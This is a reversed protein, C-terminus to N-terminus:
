FETDLLITGVEPLRADNGEKRDKAAQTENISTIIQDETWNEVNVAIQRSQLERAWYIFAELKLVNLAGMKQNLQRGNNFEKVMSKAMDPRFFMCDNMTMCGHHNAFNNAQAPTMGCSQLVTLVDAHAPM